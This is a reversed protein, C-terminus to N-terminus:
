KARHSNDPEAAHHSSEKRSIFRSVIEPFILGFVINPTTCCRTGAPVLVGAVLEKVGPKVLLM